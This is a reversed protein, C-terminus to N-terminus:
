CSSLSELLLSAEMLWEKRACSDKKIINNKNYNNSVISAHQLNIFNTFFLMKMFHWKCFCQTTTVKNYYILTRERKIKTKKRM